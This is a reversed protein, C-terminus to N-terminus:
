VDSSDHVRVRVQLVHQEVLDMTGDLQAFILMRHGVRSSSSPLGQLSDDSDAICMFPVGVEFSADM